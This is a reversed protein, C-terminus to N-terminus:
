RFNGFVGALVIASYRVAYISRLVNGHRNFTEWINQTHKYDGYTIREM